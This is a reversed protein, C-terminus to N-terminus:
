VVAKSIPIIGSQQAALLNAAIASQEQASLATSFNPDTQMATAFNIVNKAWDNAYQCSNKYSEYNNMFAELSLASPTPMIEGHIINPKIQTFELCAM